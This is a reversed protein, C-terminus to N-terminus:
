LKGMLLFLRLHRSSSVLFIFFGLGYLFPNKKNSLRLATYYLGSANLPLLETPLADAEWASPRSNSGRRGSLLIAPAIESLDRM